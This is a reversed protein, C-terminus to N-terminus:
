KVVARMKRGNRMWRMAKSVNCSLHFYSLKLATYYKFKYNTHPIRDTVTLLSYSYDDTLVSNAEVWALRIFDILLGCCSPMLNLNYKSNMSRHILNSINRNASDMKDLWRWLITPNWSLKGNRDENATQRRLDAQLQALGSRTAQMCVEWLRVVSQSNYTLNPFSM